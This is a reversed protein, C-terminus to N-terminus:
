DEDVSFESTDIIPADRYSPYSGGSTEIRSKCEICLTAHPIAKLRKEPIPQGCQVCAGYTGEEIRELALDIERLQEREVRSLALKNELQEAVSALDAQDRGHDSDGGEGAESARLVEIKTQLLLERYKDLKSKAM